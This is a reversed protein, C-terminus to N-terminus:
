QLMTQNMHSKIQEECVKLALGRPWGAPRQHRLGAHRHDAPRQVAPPAAPSRDRSAGFSRLGALGQARAEVVLDIFAQAVLRGALGRRRLQTDVIVSDLKLVHRTKDMASQYFHFCAVACLRECCWLGVLVRGFDIEQNTGGDLSTQIPGIEPSTAYRKAFDRFAQGSIVAIRPGEQVM